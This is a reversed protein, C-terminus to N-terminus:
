NPGMRGSNEHMVNYNKKHFYLCKVHIMLIHLIFSGFSYM